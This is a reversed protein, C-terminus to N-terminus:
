REKGHMSRRSAGRCQLLAVRPRSSNGSASRNCYRATTAASDTASSTSLISTGAWKAPWSSRQDRPHLLLPPEANISARRTTSKSASASAHSHFGPRLSQSPSSRTRPRGYTCSSDARSHLLGQPLFSSVPKPEDDLFRIRLLDEGHGGLCMIRCDGEEDENEGIEQERNVRASGTPVDARLKSPRRIAVIVGKEFHVRRQSLFSASPLYYVTDGVQWPARGKRQPETQTKDADASLRSPARAEVSRPRRPAASGSSRTNVGSRSSSPTAAVAPSTKSSSRTPMKSPHSEVYDQTSPRRTAFCISAIRPPVGASRFKRHKDQSSSRASLSPSYRHDLSNSITSPRILVLHLFVRVRERSGRVRRRRPPIKELCQFLTFPRTYVRRSANM